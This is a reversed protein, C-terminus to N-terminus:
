VRFVSRKSLRKCLKLARSVYAMLTAMTLAVGLWLLYLHLPFGLASQLWKHFFCSVPSLVVATQAPKGIWIAYVVVHNKMLLAGDLVMLGEKVLLIALAAWPIM